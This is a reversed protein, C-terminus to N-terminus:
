PHAGALLGLVPDHLVGNTSVANGGDITERGTWDTFRGGAERLIPLLAACDWPSTVCDLMVEARGTAVLCHGYCDGWARQLRTAGRLALLGDRAPAPPRGPDTYVLLAEHLDSVHSVHAERGNWRCGEGSAAAVMEGLAPFHAVGVVPDGAIELAVLVGYVPVGQVFAHTGDIPDIIWRHSSDREDEGFEEGLIAHDPFRTEILHRLLREAGRDAETVPTDDSKRDAQIGVQFHALTVRGARWAADVAFALLERTSAVVRVENGMESSTQGWQSWPTM